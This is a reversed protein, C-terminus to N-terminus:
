TKIQTIVLTFVIKLQPSQQYLMNPLFSFLFSSSPYSLCHVFSEMRGIDWIKSTQVFLNYYLPITQLTLFIILSTIECTKSTKKPTCHLVLISKCFDQPSNWLYLLGISCIINHQPIFSHMIVIYKKLWNETVTNPAM